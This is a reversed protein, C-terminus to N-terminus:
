AARQKRRRPSSLFRKVEVMAEPSFHYGRDNKLLELELWDSADPGFLVSQISGDSHFSISRITRGVNESAVILDAVNKANTM